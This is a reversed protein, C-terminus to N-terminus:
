VCRRLMSPVVGRSSHDIRRLSRCRVVCLMSLLCFDMGRTSNSGVIEAPLLGCVWAKSREAVPIPLTIKDLAVFCLKFGLTLYPCSQGLKLIKM